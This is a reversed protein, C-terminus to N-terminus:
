KRGKSILPVVSSIWATPGSADMQVRGIASFSVKDPGTLMRLLAKDQIEIEVNIASNPVPKAWGIQDRSSTSTVSDPRIVPVGTEPFQHFVFFGDQMAPAPVTIKIKQEETM